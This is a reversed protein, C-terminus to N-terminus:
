LPCLTSRLCFGSPNGTIPSMQKLYRDCHYLRLTLRLQLGDAHLGVVHHVLGQLGRPPHQRETFLHSVSSSVSCVVTVHSFIFIHMQSYEHILNSTENTVIIQKIGRM